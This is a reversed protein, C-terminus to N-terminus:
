REEHKIKVVNSAWPTIQMVGNTTSVELTGDEELKIQYQVGEKGPVPIYVSSQYPETKFITEFKADSNIRQFEIM